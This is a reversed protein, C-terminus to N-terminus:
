GSWPAILLALLYGIEGLQQAAGAVDGTQGGIQRQALRTVALSAVLAAGCAALARAETLGGVFPLTTGLFVSAAVASALSAPSLVGAAHALGDPRAPPLLALPLLCLGRSAAGAAPLVALAAVLGYRDLLTAVALIRVLASLMLALAGFTGIQSDRMIALKRERQKGGGFGDAVDALGDEHLAGSALIQATLALTVALLPPMGLGWAAVLLALAGIGGIVLGALPALRLARGFSDDESLTSEFRLPRIPLRTFFRLCVLLDTAFRLGSAALIVPLSAIRM